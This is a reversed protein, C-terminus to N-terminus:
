IAMVCLMAAVLIWSSYLDRKSMATTGAKPRRLTGSEPSAGPAREIKAALM